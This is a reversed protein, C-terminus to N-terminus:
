RRAALGIRKLRGVEHHRREIRDLHFAGIRQGFRLEIAEEELHPEVIGIFVLQDPNDRSWRAGFLGADFRHERAVLRGARDLRQFMQHALNHHRRGDLLVRRPHHARGLRLIGDQAIEM